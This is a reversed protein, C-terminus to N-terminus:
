AKEETPTETVVAQQKKRKRLGAGAAAALLAAAGGGIMPNGTLTSVIDGVTGANDEVASAMADGVRVEVTEGTEPDFVDMTKDLLSCSSLVLLMPLVYKM